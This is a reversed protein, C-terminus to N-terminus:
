KMMMMMMMSPDQSTTIMIYELKQTKLKTGQKCKNMYFVFYVYYIIGSEFAEITTKNFVIRWIYIYKQVRASSKRLSM